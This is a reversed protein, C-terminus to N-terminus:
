RHDGAFLGSPLRTQNLKLRLIDIDNYLSPLLETAPVRGQVAVAPGVSCYRLLADGRVAHVVPTTLRSDAIKKPLRFVMCVSSCSARIRAKSDPPPGVCSPRTIERSSWCM